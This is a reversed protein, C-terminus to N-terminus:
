LQDGVLTRTVWDITREMVKMSMLVSIHGHRSRWLETGMWIQRLEEVTRIPAFLDNESAVFLVNAPAIKLQHNILNLPDLKVRAGNLSRRIPACFDLEAVVRDMRSVPTM